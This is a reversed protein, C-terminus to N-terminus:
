PTEDGALAVVLHLNAYGIWTRVIVHYTRLIGKADVLKVADGIVPVQVMMGWQTIPEQSSGEYFRCTVSM